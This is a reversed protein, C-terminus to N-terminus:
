IIIKYVCWALFLGLFVIAADQVLMLKRLRSIEAWQKDTAFKM